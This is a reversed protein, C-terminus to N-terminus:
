KRLMKIIELVDSASKGYADAGIEKHLNADFRFPAGGVVVKTRLNEERLKLIFEKVDLASNLM